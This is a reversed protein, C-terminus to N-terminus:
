ACVKDVLKVCVTETGDIREVYGDPCKLSEYQVCFEEGTFSDFTIGTCSACVDDETVSIEEGFPKIKTTDGVKVQQSGQCVLKVCDCNSGDFFNAQNSTLCTTEDELDVSTKVFEPEISIDITSTSSDLSDIGKNVKIKFESECNTPLLESKPPPNYIFDPTIEPNICIKFETSKCSKLTRDTLEGDNLDNNVFESKVSGADADVSNQVTIEAMAQDAKKIEEAFPDVPNIFNNISYDILRKLPLKIEKTIKNLKNSLKLKESEFKIEDSTSFDLSIKEADVLKVDATYMPITIDYENKIAETYNKNFIDSAELNLQTKIIDEIEPPNTSFCPDGFIRWYPLEDKPFVPDTLTSDCTGSIGYPGDKYTGYKSTSHTGQYVSYLSAQEMGMEIFKMQNVSEVINREQVGKIVAHLQYAISFSAVGIVTLVSLVSVLAVNIVAKM